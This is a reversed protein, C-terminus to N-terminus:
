RRKRKRAHGAQLPQTGKGYNRMFRVSAEMARAMAVEESITYNNDPPLEGISQKLRADSAREIDDDLCKNTEVRVFLRKCCSLYHDYYDRDSKIMRSFADRYLQIMKRPKNLYLIGRQVNLGSDSVVELYLGCAFAAADSQSTAMMEKPEIELESCVANLIIDYTIPLRQEM